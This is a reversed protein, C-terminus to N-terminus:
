LVGNRRALQLAYDAHGRAYGNGMLLQVDKGMGEATLVARSFNTAMNFFLVKGGQRAALISAAETQPVNCTNIVLDYERGEGLNELFAQPDTADAQIVGPWSGKPKTDVATLQDEPIVELAALASLMGARGMGLILVQDAPQILRKVWIPAGCVDLISLATEEPLDQPMKVAVGSAFLIAHGAVSLQARDPNVENIEKLALPTLTLSVLTAVRDGESFDGPYESGVQRVRGLLMGGSNIVPNHMKGREKVISFVKEQVKLPKGGQEEWIQHFSSSDLNLREVDLLIENSYIPLRVELRQAAQPLVGKPELVRHFGLPHGGSRERRDAIKLVQAM